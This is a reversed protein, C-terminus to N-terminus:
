SLLPEIREVLLPAGLVTDLDRHVVHVEDVDDRAGGGFAKVTVPNACLILGVLRDVV